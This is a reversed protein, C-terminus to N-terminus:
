KKEKGRNVRDPEGVNGEAAAERHTARGLKTVKGPSRAFARVALVVAEEQTMGRLFCAAKFADKLGRPVNRVYFVGKTRRGKRVVSSM